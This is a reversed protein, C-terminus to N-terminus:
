QFGSESVVKGSAREVRLVVSRGGGPQSGGEDKLYVATVVEDDASGPQVELRYESRAWGKAAALYGAAAEEVPSVLISVDTLVRTYADAWGVKGPYFSQRDRWTIELAAGSGKSWRLRFYVYRHFKPLYGGAISFAFPTQWSLRSEDRTFSVVDGSEPVFLYQPDSWTKHVPGFTFARGDSLLVLRGRSDTIVKLEFLGSRPLPWKEQGLVFNDADILLPDAPVPSSPGPFRRDLVLLIRSGLLLWVAGIAIGCGAAIGILSVIRV